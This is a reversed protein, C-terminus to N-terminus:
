EGLIFSGIDEIVEKSVYKKEKYEGSYSDGKGEMMFHNSKPYSYFTWNPLNEFATKWLNYQKMTVQYDREGQLVLAPAEIKKAINIPNYRYLDIWYDKHFGQIKLDDPIEFPVELMDVEQIIQNIQTHEELSIQDDEMALYEYQEKLYDKVHEAPSSMFIYGALDTLKESIRPLLYGGQSFGLIYVKNSNVSKLEMAMNTAEVADNITEEYVTLSPIDKVEEYLYTRKDYRYTAIGLKALQWAIDQFPKNQYISLDRDSEGWGHVLVILPYSEEQIPTTLTGPIVYGESYFSFEEEKIGEPMEKSKESPNKRYEEYSFGIIENEQNFTILLNTNQITAEIPVMIYKNAGYFYRYLDGIRELDGLELNQFIINKKTEQSSIIKKMDNNYLYVSELSEFNETLLDKAFSEGVLLLNELKLEEEKEKNDNDQNSAELTKGKFDEQNSDEEGLTDEKKDEKNKDKQEEVEVLTNDELGSDKNRSINCGFLFTSSLCLFIILFRKM